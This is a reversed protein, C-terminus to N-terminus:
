VSYEANKKKSNYHVNFFYLYFIFYSGIQNGVNQQVQDPNPAPPQTFVRDPDFNPDYVNTYRHCKMLFKIVFNYFLELM